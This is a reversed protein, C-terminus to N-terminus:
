KLKSTPMVIKAFHFEDIKKALIADHPLKEQLNFKIAIDKIGYLFNLYSEPSEGNYINKIIKGLRNRIKTDWMVFLKPNLLSLAKSAGTQGFLSRFEKYIKKVLEECSKNITLLSFGELQSLEAKNNELVEQVKSITLKKTEKAAFNWCFLLLLIGQITKEHTYWDSSNLKAEKILESALDYCFARPEEKFKEAPDSFDQYLNYPMDRLFM